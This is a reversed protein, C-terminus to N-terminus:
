SPWGQKGILKVFRCATIAHTEPGAATRTVVLLDQDEVTGVPLVMRGGVALQDYLAMPIAPAAAAVLIADFPADGPSGLTGDGVRYAVNTCGLSLLIRSAPDALLPLREITVVRRCLRSLIATHYGSGTGIELVHENGHLALAATMMAVITPQSITQGGAIPLATDEWASAHWEPPVFRARDVHRMADLVRPDSTVWDSIIRILDDTNSTM